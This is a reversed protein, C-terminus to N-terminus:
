NGEQEVPEAPAAKQIERFVAAVGQAGIRGIERQVGEPTALATRYYDLLEAKSTNASFPAPGNGVIGRAIFRATEEVHADIEDALDDWTHQKTM